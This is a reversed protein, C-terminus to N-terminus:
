HTLVAKGICKCTNVGSAEDPQSTAKASKPSPTINSKLGCHEGFRVNRFRGMTPLGALICLVNLASPIGPSHLPAASRM